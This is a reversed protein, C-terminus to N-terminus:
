KAEGEQSASDRELEEALMAAQEALQPTQEVYVYTFLDKPDPTIERNMADRLEKAVQEAHAKIQEAKEDDLLGENRLYAEMRVM